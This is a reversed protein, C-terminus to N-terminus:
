IRETEINSLEESSVWEEVRKTVVVINPNHDLTFFDSRDWTTPDVSLNKPRPFGRRGCLDCALLESLTVGVRRASGKPVLEVLSPPDVGGTPAVLEVDALGVGRFERQIFARVRAVSMWILGPAPHVFDESLRGLIEGRPPGFSMGPSVDDESVGLMRAWQVHKSRWEDRSLFRPNEFASLDTPPLPLRLRASSSWPGCRECAIGPLRYGSQVRCPNRRDHEADSPYDPPRLKFFAMQDGTPYLPCIESGSNM